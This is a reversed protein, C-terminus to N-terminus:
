NKDPDQKYVLSYLLMRQKYLFFKKFHVSNDLLFFVSNLFLSYLSLGVSMKYNELTTESAM